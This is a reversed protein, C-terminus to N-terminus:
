VDHDNVRVPALPRKKIRFDVVMEKTKSVNNWITTLVGTWWGEMGRGINQNM